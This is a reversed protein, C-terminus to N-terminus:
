GEGGAARLEKLEKKLTRVERKLRDVTKYLHDMESRNPFPLEKTVEEVYAQFDRRFQMGRDVLKGQLRAFEETRFLEIYLEESTEWWLRYFERFSMPEAEGEAQVSALKEQLKQFSQAGAGQLAAYFETLVINFETISDVAHGLKEAAERYYGMAPARLLRGFSEEYAKRWGEYVETAADVSPREMKLGSDMLGRSYELWPSWLHTALGAMLLPIEADYLEAIWRLQEPLAPAFVRQVIDRYEGAWEELAKSVAEFDYEGGEGVAKRYAEFMQMWMAYLRSYVDTAQFMKMYTDPGIGQSPVAFKEMMERTYAAWQRYYDMADPLSASGAEGGGGRSPAAMRSWAGMWDRFMGAQMEQWKKWVDPWPDTKEQM